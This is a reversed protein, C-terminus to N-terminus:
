QDCCWRKDLRHLPFRDPPPVKALNVPGFERVAGVGCGFGQWHRRGGVDVIGIHCVILLSVLWVVFGLGHGMVASEIAACSILLPLNRLASLSNVLFVMPSTFLRRMACLM